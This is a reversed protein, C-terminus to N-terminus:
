CTLKFFGHDYPENMQFSGLLEKASCRNIHFIIGISAEEPSSIKSFSEAAAVKATVIRDRHYLYTYWFEVEGEGKENLEIRIVGTPPEFQHSYQMSTFYGRWIVM